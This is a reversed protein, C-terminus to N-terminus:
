FQLRFGTSAGIGNTFPDYTVGFDIYFVVIKFSMGGMIRAGGALVFQKFDLVTDAFIDTPLPTTKIYESISYTRNGSEVTLGGSSKISTLSFGLYPEIGIMFELFGLVVASYQGKIGFTHTDSDLDIKFGDNGIIIDDRYGFSGPFPIGIGFHQYFYSFGVSLSSGKNHFIAWRTDLSISYFNDFHLSSSSSIASLPVYMFHFGIDMPLPLGIRGSFQPNGFLGPMNEFNLNRIEDMLGESEDFMSNLNTIAGTASIALGWHPFKGIFASNQSVSALSSLSIASAFARSADKFKSKLDNVSIQAFIQATICSLGILIILFKKKM